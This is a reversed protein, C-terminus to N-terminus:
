AGVVVRGKKFATNSSFHLPFSILPFLPLYFLADFISFDWEPDVKESEKCFFAEKTYIIFLFLFFSVVVCLSSANDKGLPVKNGSDIRRRDSQFYPLPDKLFCMTYVLLALFFFPCFLLDLLICFSFWSSLIYTIPDLIKFNKEIKM